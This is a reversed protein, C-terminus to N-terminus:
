PVPTKLIEYYVHKPCNGSIAHERFLRADMYLASQICLKGYELNMSSVNNYLLFQIENVKFLFLFMAGMDSEIHIYVQKM